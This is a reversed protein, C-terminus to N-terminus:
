ILISLSFLLNARQQQSPTWKEPSNFLAYHGRAVLEKLTDGNELPPPKTNEAQCNLMKKSM